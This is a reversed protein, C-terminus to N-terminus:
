RFCWAILFWAGRGVVYLWGVTAVLVSAGWGVTFLKPGIERMMARSGEDSQDIELAPEDSHLTAM